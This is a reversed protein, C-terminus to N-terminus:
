SASVQTRIARRTSAPGVLGAEVPEAADYIADLAAALDLNHTCDGRYGAGQGLQVAWDVIAAGGWDTQPASLPATRTGELHEAAFDYFSGGVNRVRVGGRAGLVELVIEADAGTNARWSCSLTASIAQETADVAGSTRPAGAPSTDEFLALQVNAFDEVEDSTSRWRRGERFLQSALVQVLSRDTMWFVMDILHIGLDMVCGGGSQQRQYYWPQDPGYANHFVARLAFPRGITGNAVLTHAARMAGVHRYSLDVGLLRDVRRALAVVGAAEEHTRALPKQCFVACGRELVRRADSAHRASPTAIVVGDLPLELLAELSTVVPVGPALGSAEALRRSDVDALGAVELAGSEVAARLRNAGIWGLGLFGVRPKM